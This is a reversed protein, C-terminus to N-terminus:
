DQQKLAWTSLRRLAHAAWGSKRLAGLEEAVEPYVDQAWHVLASGKLSAWLPGCCLQLPPDTMTLIIQRKRLRGLKWILAPYLSIYSVIRRRNSRKDYPLGGVRVVSETPGAP